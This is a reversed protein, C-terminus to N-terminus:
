FFGSRIVVKLAEFVLGPTLKGSTKIISEKVNNWVTDNEVKEAFDHGADTLRFLTVNAPIAKNSGSPQVRGEALGSERVLQANILYEHQPVGEIASISKGDSDRLALVIRRILDTDRKM